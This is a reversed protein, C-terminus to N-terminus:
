EWRVTTKHDELVFVHFSLSKPIAAFSEADVDIIGADRKGEGNMGCLGANIAM